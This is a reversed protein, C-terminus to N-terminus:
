LIVKVLPNKLSNKRLKAQQKALVRGSNITRDIRDQELKQNVCFTKTKGEKLRIWYSATKKKTRM